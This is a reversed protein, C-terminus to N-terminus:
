FARTPFSGIPLNYFVYMYETFLFSCEKSLLFRKLSSVRNESNPHFTLNPRSEGPHTPGEWGQTQCAASARLESRRKCFPHPGTKVLTNPAPRM